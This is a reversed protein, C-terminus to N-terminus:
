KTIYPWDRIVAEKNSDGLISFLSNFQNLLAAGDKTLPHLGFSINGSRYDSYFLKTPVSIYFGKDFSGEGFEEDSLNTKSAFIGLTFGTRFRRSLDITIGKDGALYEGILIQSKINSPLDFYLGLHATTNTYDRLSFKQDYDRQKVKHMSFGLAYRRDFPRYLIEGGYGAFMEELLGFDGRLYLDNRPSSFYQLQLRQINNKGQELYDQIDSRVHPITSQSPNKLDNFTDYINIGFSTYLALNRKFKIATDTKWSLQGLYFGEPGGIQHKLSPSMSWEFEPFITTPKYDAELYLPKNTKSFFNSKNLAENISGSSSEINDFEERDISLIAVELDGNMSHINIKKISNDTLRSAIRTARGAARTLSYYKTSAIAIDVSEKSLTAAQIYISEDRLSRNLSRYFIEPNQKTKEIQDQSLRVVNKPGKKPIVDRLFNGTLNFSFRFQNGREFSSSINFSDSFFYSVGFNFRNHVKNVYGLRDPNSTDYELKFKLNKRKLDYELGAFVATQGSFWSDYSLLGGEGVSAKRFKFSDNLKLFPNNINNDSGLVGWGYGITLDINNLKKTAVIYESSFIGTGALDRLGLAISPLIYNEKLLRFKVDFAKDKYSQNASYTSPGYKRDKIESYRYSAEMWSFPSASLSSYENPFSGSFNFRLSAEQMFRANPMELIGTIGYNSSNSSDKYDFYDDIDAFLQSSWFFLTSLILRLNKSV